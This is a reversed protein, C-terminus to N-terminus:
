PTPFPEHPSGDPNHLYGPVDNSGIPQGIQSQGITEIIGGEDETSVAASLWNFEVDMVNRWVMRLDVDTADAALTVMPHTRVWSLGNAQMLTEVSQSRPNNIRLRIAELIDFAPCELSFSRCDISLIFRRLGYLVSSLANAAPDWTQRYDDVGVSRFGSINLELYAGLTGNRLGEFPLPEHLWIVSWGDPAWDTVTLQSVLDKLAGM